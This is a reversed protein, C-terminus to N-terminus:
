LIFRSLDESDTLGALRERVFAADIVVDAEAHEPADFAIEELIKELLTHLRRAGIQETGENVKVAMKAIEAVGDDTFRLNVGDVALLAICQKTLANEPERLIREFDAATLPELQARLPFRGQLEPILDSPKSQHFAGAAIFLVHDTRVPGHKTFISSGEVIPLIDRQVGQRSVDPGRSDGGRGAIKDMEDIFIIGSTEARELGLRLAREEDIRRDCEEQFLRPRADAVSM